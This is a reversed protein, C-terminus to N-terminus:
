RREESRPMKMAAGEEELLLLIEAFLKDKVMRRPKYVLASQEFEILAVTRGGLHRDGAGLHFHKILGPSSGRFFTQQIQDWDNALRTIMESSSEFWRRAEVTLIRALVPYESFLALARVPESLQQLFYLYREQGSDGRLEGRARAVNLELIVTRQLLERYRSRLSPLLFQAIQRADVGLNGPLTLAEISMLFNNEAWALWSWISGLMGDQTISGPKEPQYDAELLSYIQQLDQHWQPRVGPVRALEEESVGLLDIFDLRDLNFERRRWEFIEEPVRNLQQNWWELKTTADKERQAANASPLPMGAILSQREHCNLARFSALRAEM